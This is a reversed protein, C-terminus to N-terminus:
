ASVLRKQLANKVVFTCKVTGGSLTLCYFKIRKSKGVMVVKELKYKKFEFKTNKM